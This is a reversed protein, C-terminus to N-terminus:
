AHSTTPKLQYESKSIANHIDDYESKKIAKFKVKDGAKIFCPPNQNPNFLEIPSNGIIHWGGPSDQPYIGTQQGGIAVSGKKVNLNPTTKRNLFLRSDLGGLYLFGPLFGIFFVTYIVESHLKIIKSKSFKKISSLEELDMGFEVDYCVPLEWIQPKINKSTNQHQFLEKLKIFEDNINEITTDYIVLMSNYTTIVEIKQKIYNIQICNNLNLISKLMLDDIIAPWEILISHENFQSYHLNYTM